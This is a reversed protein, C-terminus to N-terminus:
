GTRSRRRYRGTGKVGFKKGDKTVNSSVFIEPYDPHHYNEQPYIQPTGIKRAFKLYQDENINQNRFVVLKHEYVLQKITHIEAETVVVVDIDVVEAGISEVNPKNIKM